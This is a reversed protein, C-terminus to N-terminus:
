HADSVSYTGTEPPPQPADGAGDKSEEIKKEVPTPPEPKKFGQALRKQGEHYGDMYATYQPTGPAWDGSKKPDGQWGDREGEARAREVAPTRDEFMEMQSGISVAEWRAIRRTEEIDAKLRREGEETRMARGKDLMRKSIGYSKAEDYVKKRAAKSKEFKADLDATLRKYHYYMAQFNADDHPAGNHGVAKNKKNTKQKAESKSKAAKARKAM